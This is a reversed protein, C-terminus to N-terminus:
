IRPRARDLSAPAGPDARGRRGPRRACCRRPLRRADHDAVLATVRPRHPVYAGVPQRCWDSSRSGLPRARGPRQGRDPPCRHEGPGPAPQRAPSPTIAPATSADTPPRPRQGRACRPLDLHLDDRHRLSAPPNPMSAARTAEPSRGATLEATVRDARVGPRALLRERPRRRSQQSRGDAIAPRYRHRGGNAHVERAVTTPHRGLLRAIVAWGVGRDAILAINGRTRHQDVAGAIM